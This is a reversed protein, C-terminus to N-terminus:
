DIFYEIVELLGFRVQRISSRRLVSKNEFIQRELPHFGLLLGSADNQLSGM